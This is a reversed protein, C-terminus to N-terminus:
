SYHSSNLRTSKRDLDSKERAIAELTGFFELHARGITTIAAIDPEVVAALRAIEGPDNTGVEIVAVRHEPTLRLLNRPVGFENNTNGETALVRDGHVTRLISELIARLSTKGSSGTLGIVTAQRCQRRWARALDHYANLSDPVALTPVKKQHLARLQSESTRATQLCVAGAGNQVAKSIFRHGDVLNGQIAIFLAGPTLARSDDHIGDVGVTDARPPILWEGGTIERLQTWIFEPM